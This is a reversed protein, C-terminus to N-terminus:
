RHDRIQPGVRHDRIQPGVRHDRIRPEVVREREFGGPIWVCEGTAISWHGQVYKGRNPGKREWHGAVLELKGAVLRFDTPVWGYGPQSPPSLQEVSPLTAVTQEVRGGRPGEAVLRFCNPTLGLKMSLAGPMSAPWGFSGDDLQIRSEMEGRDSFLRVRDVGLVEWHFEHWTEGNRVTPDVRFFVIRPEEALAPVPGLLASGLVSVLAVLLLAFPRAITSPACTSKM